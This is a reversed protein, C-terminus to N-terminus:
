KKREAIMADAIRYLYKAANDTDGIHSAAFNLMYGALAQGAFYDRITLGCLSSEPNYPFASGGTKEWEQNTM